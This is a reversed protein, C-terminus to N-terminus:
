ICIWEDRLIDQQEDSNVWKRPAITINDVNDCLYSGWWSFTSNSIIHNKCHYLMYLDDFENQGDLIYEVDYPFQYNKKIWELDKPSNSFIFFKCDHIQNKMIDMAKLYYNYGCVEYRKNGVYDGRRIHVGVSRCKSLENAKERAKRNIGRVLRLENKIM